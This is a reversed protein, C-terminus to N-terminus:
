RDFTYAHSLAHCSCYRIIPLTHIVFSVDEKQNSALNAAHGLIGFGTVDTAAHAGHKQMLKAGTRNLRSMSKQALGYARNGAHVM